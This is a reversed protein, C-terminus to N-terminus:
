NNINMKIACYYKQAIIKAATCFIKLTNSLSTEVNLLDLPENGFANPFEGSDFRLRKFTLDFQGFINFLNNEDCQNQKQKQKIPFNQSTKHLDPSLVLQRSSHARAHLFLEFHGCWLSIVFSESKHLRVRIADISSSFLAPTAVIRKENKAEHKKQTRIGQAKSENQQKRRFTNCGVASKWPANQM